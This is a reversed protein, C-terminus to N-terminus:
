RKSVVLNRANLYEMLSINLFFNNKLFVMFEKNSGSFCISKKNLIIMSFVGKM